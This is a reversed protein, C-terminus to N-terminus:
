LIDDDDDEWKWWPNSKTQEQKTNDRNLPTVM